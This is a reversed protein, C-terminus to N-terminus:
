ARASFCGELCPARESRVGCHTGRGIGLALARSSVAAGIPGDTEPLGYDRIIFGSLM